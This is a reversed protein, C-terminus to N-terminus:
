KISLPTVRHRSVYPQYGLDDVDLYVMGARSVTAPSAVALDQVWPCGLCPSSPPTWTLPVDIM